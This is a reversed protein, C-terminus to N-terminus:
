INEAIIKIFDLDTGFREMLEADKEPSIDEQVCLFIEVMTRICQKLLSNEEQLQKVRPDGRLWM